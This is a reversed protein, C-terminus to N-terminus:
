RCLKRDLALPADSLDNMAMLALAEILPTLIQLETATLNPCPLPAGVDTVCAESAPANDNAGRSSPPAASKTKPLPM